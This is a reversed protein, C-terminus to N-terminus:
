WKHQLIFGAQIDPCGTEPGPWTGSSDDEEPHNVYSSPPCKRSRGRREPESPHTEGEFSSGAGEFFCCYCAASRLELCTRVWARLHTVQCGPTVGMRARGRHPAWCGAPVRSEPDLAGTGRLCGCEKGRLTSKLDGGQSDGVRSKPHGSFVKEVM